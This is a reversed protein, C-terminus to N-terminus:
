LPPHGLWFVLLATLSLAILAASIAQQININGVRDQEDRMPQLVIRGIAYAAVASLFLAGPFPRQNWLAAAGLLVVGWGAELLQAPVRRCWFGRDNPLYLSLRGASPRGSCCGHLLCGLRGLILWVLMGFVAVDWFAGFPLELAALLPQSVAVALVLGGQMAVGGESRSWIRHPECRFIAWHSAVFLLRAGILGAIALVITAVFVRASNLGGVNAVYNGAVMGLTLGIYQMVRHAHIQVRRRAVLIQRLGGPRRRDFRQSAQPPGHTLVLPDGL